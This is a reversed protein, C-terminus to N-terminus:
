DRCEGFPEMKISTNEKFSKVRASRDDNLDVLEDQYFDIRPPTEKSCQSSARSSSKFSLNIDQTGIALNVAPELAMELSSSLRDTPSMRLDHASNSPSTLRTISLNNNNINSLPHNQHQLHHPPSLHRSGNRNERDRVRNRELQREYEKSREKESRKDDSIPIMSAEMKLNPLSAPALHTPMNFGAVLNAADVMSCMQQRMAAIVADPSMQETGPQQHVLGNM